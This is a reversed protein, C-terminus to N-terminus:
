SQEDYEKEGLEGEDNDNQEEGGDDGEQGENSENNRVEHDEDNNNNDLDEEENEEINIVNTNCIDLHIEDESFEYDLDSMESGSPLDLIYQVAERSSLRKRTM